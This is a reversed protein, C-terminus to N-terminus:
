ICYTVILMRWRALHDRSSTHLICERLESLGKVTSFTKQLRCINNEMKENNHQGLAHKRVASITM